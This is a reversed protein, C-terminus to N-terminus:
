GAAQNSGFPLGLGDARQNDNAIDMDLKEIDVGRATVAERRSMLGADIASIEAEVDKKPDVWSQKPTIHTAAIAEDTKAKIQGTLVATAAWRQWIPRCLQFCVVGHQLAELRRRFDVLGARISSYNVSSLDGSVMAAPLGLGVAIERETIKAFEIVEPGINAPASFTIEQGPDLMKILGPELGGTLNGNGDNDGDFPQGEGGASKIFGALMAAVKQRVLQADRWSDLDNMRLLVPAFWSVGRVQGPYEPKFLHIMDRVPIRQRKRTMSDMSDFIHYAIREGNKNFEVGNQVRGSTLSATHSSDVQEVDIVRIRLGNEGNSLIAFSEGDIVMRRVMLAQLGYLDTLGDADAVDTWTEFSQNLKSRVTPLRHSSQPKIGTGVLSSVWAEIASAALANNVALYRARQMIPVRAANAAENPNAMSQWSNFRRGGAAADYNRKQVKRIKNFPWIM